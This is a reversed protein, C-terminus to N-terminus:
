LSQHHTSNTFIIRANNCLTHPKPTASKRTAVNTRASIGAVPTTAEINQVIHPEGLASMAYANSGHATNFTSGAALEM